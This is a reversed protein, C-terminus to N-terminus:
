TVEGGWLPATDREFSQKMQENSGGQWPSPDSPENSIREKPDPYIPPNM